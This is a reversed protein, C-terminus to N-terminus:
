SILGVVTARGQRRPRDQFLDFRFRDRNFNERIIKGRHAALRELHVIPQLCCLKMAEVVFDVEGM